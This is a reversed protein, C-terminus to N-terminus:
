RPPQCGPMTCAADLPGAVEAIWDLYLSVRTHGSEEGVVYRAKGGTRSVCSHVGVLRTTGDAATAWLPGGSDGPAICLPLPGADPTRRIPCVYIGREIAGLFVTGARLRQDGGQLGVSLSGTMGYGAAAAVTGIRETADSLAPYVRATFPEAVHLLAIDHWGYDGSRYDRHAFVRDVRHRRRLTVVDVAIMEDTVHAATLVWCPSLMTGSGALPVGDRTPGTVRVVYEGFTAGYELYRADGVSEDITGAMVPSAAVVLAALWRM